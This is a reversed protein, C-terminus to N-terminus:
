RLNHWCFTFNMAKSGRTPHDPEVWIGRKLQWWDKVNQIGGETVENEVSKIKKVM